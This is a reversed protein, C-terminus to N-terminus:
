PILGLGRAWTLNKRASGVHAIHVVHGEGQNADGYLIPGASSAEAETALKDLDQWYRSSTTPRRSSRTSWAWTHTPRRADDRLLRSRAARHGLRAPRRPRGQSRGVDRQGPVPDRGGQCRHAGELAPVADRQGGGDLPLGVAQHIDGFRSVAGGMYAVRPSAMAIEYALRLGQATELIPYIVKSGQPLGADDEMCRLLADAAHIDAPGYVKPLLIGALNPTM